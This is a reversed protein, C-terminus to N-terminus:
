KEFVRKVKELSKVLLDIEQKTNYLYFSARASANIGIKTHLPMACHHGSRIAIGDENLIAAIDHPHVDNMTFAILGSRDKAKKPGIINVLKSLKKLAYDTIEQDHRRINKMGIKQLYDIAAKFGVAGAIHPTGAEFKYPLDNWSANNFSVEKIMESGFIFPEMKKLLEERAYLVGIGTPGLMKHASFALIDIDLEQVDVPMHPVSQAGDVVIIADSAIEAIEKIPNITGLVNSAQTIAIVKANRAKQKLEEIKLYGDQDFGVFDLKANNIKALQQWPILNSHHEMESLLIKGTSVIKRLGFAAVNLAETTNRVFIVEEPKEANIFKAVTERAEEYAKTAEEGLSHISRHINANYNQYYNTIAEIVQKPKQSTAASDLYVLRKGNIKIKLIPFDKRYKELRM